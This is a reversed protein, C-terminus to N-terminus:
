FIGSGVVIKEGTIYCSKDSILFEALDALRQPQILGLPQATSLRAAIEPAEEVSSHFMPTDVDAPAIANVRIRRGILEMSAVKVVAEVAAKSASYAMLGKYRCLAATSSLGIISGGERMYRKSAAYHCIEMFAMTNVRFLKETQDPDNAKLPCNLTIGASHVAADLVLKESRCYEFVKKTANLETFDVSVAYVRSGLESKMAQLKEESRAAMVITAGLKHFHRTMAQGIGSTAGTILIVKDKM